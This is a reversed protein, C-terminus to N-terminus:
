HLTKVAIGSDIARSHKSTTESMTAAELVALTEGDSVTAPDLKNNYPHSHQRVDPSMSIDYSLKSGDESNQPFLLTRQAPEYASSDKSVDHM